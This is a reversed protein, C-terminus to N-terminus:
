ASTIADKHSAVLAILRIQIPLSFGVLKNVALAAENAKGLAALTLIKQKHFELAYNYSNVRMITAYAIDPRGIQRFEQILSILEEQNLKGQSRIVLKQAQRVRELKLLPM